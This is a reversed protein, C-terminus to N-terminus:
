KLCFYYIIEDGVRIEVVDRKEFLLNNKRIENKIIENKELIKINIGVGKKNKIYGSKIAKLHVKFIFIGINDYFITQILFFNGFYNKMMKLILDKYEYIDINKWYTCLEEYDSIRINNIGRKTLQKLYNKLNYMKISINIKNYNVFGKEANYIEFNLIGQDNELFSLVPQVTAINNCDKGQIPLEKSIYIKNNINNKNSKNINYPYFDFSYYDCLNQSNLKSESEYDEKTILEKNFKIKKFYNYAYALKIYLPDLIGNKEPNMKIRINAIIDITLSEKFKSPVISFKILEFISNFQSLEKKIKTYYLKAIYKNILLLLKKNKTEFINILDYYDLFRLIYLIGDNKKIKNFLSIDFLKQPKKVIKKPILKGKEISKESRISFNKSSLSQSISINNSSKINELKVKKLNKVKKRIYPVKKLKILLNNSNISENNSTNINYFETTTLNTNINERETFIRRLSLSENIRIRPKDEDDDYDEELRLKPIRCLNMKGSTIGIKKIIRKNNIRTNLNSNNEHQERSTFLFNDKKRTSISKSIKANKAKITKKYYKKNRSEDKKMINENFFNDYLRYINFYSSFSKAKRKFANINLHYKNYLLNRNYNNNISITKYQWSSSVRPPPLSQNEEIEKINNDYYPVISNLAM